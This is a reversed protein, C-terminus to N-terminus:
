SSAEPSDQTPERTPIQTPEPSATDATVPQSPDNESRIPRMRDYFFLGATAFLGAVSALLISRWSQFTDLDPNWITKSTWGYVTEGLGSFTIAFGIATPRLRDGIHETLYGWHSWRMFQRAFEFVAVSAFLHWAVQSLGICTAAASFGGVM